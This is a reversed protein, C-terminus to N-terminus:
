EHKGTADHAAGPQAHEATPAAAEPAADTGAAAGALRARLSRELDAAAQSRVMISVRRNRQDLPADPLRLETDALGRVSQIQGPKLGGIEMSRRAANARDASLEWNSYRSPDAYPTRDTHGEIVVSNTLQALEAAIIGLMQESQGLLVASGSNFFSSGEQEVLEIRLGEPTVTMEIQEKLNTLGPMATLAAEIHAAAATLAQVESPPAVSPEAPGGGMDIPGNSKQQDFIGPDRFYGAVASKVQPSQGVLWMVLFFAMMATVFDAYAVKWAGGHHGHHGGKKKIIIIPQVDPKM